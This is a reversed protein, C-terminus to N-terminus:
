QYLSVCNRGSNKSTYLANDAMRIIEEPTSFYSPIVTAVGLSCTVHNCVVSSIHPIELAEISIRIKEAIVRGGEQHTEPLIVAFEEGGYRSVTDSPRRITEKITQAVKILCEDGYQHGYTDNYNKFSDIDLMILTLAKSARACRGWESTITEDFFRRNSIKTLGDILSAEKLEQELRRQETTDKFQWLFGNFQGNIIIPIADQSIIRGDTLEWEEGIVKKRDAIIEQRREQYSKPNLFLNTASTPADTFKLGLMNVTHEPANFIEAFQHNTLILRNDKDEAIIGYPIHSILAHLRASTRKMEEEMKVRETINRANVVIKHVEGNEEIVPKGRVELHIVENKLKWRVQIQISRKSKVMEQHAGIVKDLDEPHIYEYPKRGELERVKVKKSHEHSPSAYLIKGESDMVTVFDSMNDAIMRYMEDKERLEREIEKQETIDHINALIVSQNNFHIKSARVEVSVVSGDKRRYLKEGVFAKNKIIVMEINENVLSEDSAIIDSLTLKLLEHEEYGLMDCFRENTEVITKDIPNFAYIGETSQKMMSRYREESEHLKSQLQNVRELEDRLQRRVGETFISEYIQIVAYTLFFVLFYYLDTPKWQTFYREGYIYFFYSFVTASSLTTIFINLHNRYSVSFIAPLILLYLNIYHPEKLNLIFLVALILFIIGYMTLKPMIAKKVLYTIVLMPPISILTIAFAAEYDKLFLNLPIDLCLFIWIGIVSLNNRKKILFDDDM